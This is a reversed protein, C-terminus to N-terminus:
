SLGGRLDLGVVRAADVLQRTAIPLPGDDHEAHQYEIRGVLQYIADAARQRLAADRVAAIAVYDIAQRLRRAARKAEVWHGLELASELAQLATEAASVHVSINAALGPGTNVNWLYAPAARDPYSLLRGPSCDVRTEDRLWAAVPGDLALQDLVDGITITEWQSGGDDCEDGDPTLTRRQITVQFPVPHGDIARYEVVPSNNVSELRLVGPMSGTHQNAAM